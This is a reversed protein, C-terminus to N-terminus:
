AKVPAPALRIEAESLTISGFIEEFASSFEASKRFKEFLPWRLYEGKSPRGANGIRRMLASTEGFREMLVSYALKLIDATSSWDRSGLITDCEQKDGDLYAALAGNILFVLRNNDDAYKYAVTNGFDLLKRALKYRREQILGFALDQLAGNAKVTQDPVAHRWLLYGLKVGTAYVTDHAAAFYEATIEFSDGIQKDRLPLGHQRCVDLYRASVMGNDYVLARRCEMLETLEPATALESGLEIGFKRELWAIREDHNMGYLCEAEQALSSERSRDTFTPEDLMAPTSIEKRTEMPESRLHFLTEVLNTLYGEYASTLAMFFSAPLSQCSARARELHKKKSYFAEYSVLLGDMGPSDVHGPDPCLRYCRKGSQDSVELKSNIFDDLEKQEVEGARQLAGLSEALAVGLSGITETFNKINRKPDRPPMVM